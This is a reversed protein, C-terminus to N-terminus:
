RWHRRDHGRWHGGGYGGHPRPTYAYPRYVPRPAYYRPAPAAYGHGYYGPPGSVVCGPAIALPLLLFLARLRRM